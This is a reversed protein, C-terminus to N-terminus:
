KLIPLYKPNTIGAGIIPEIKYTKPIKAVNIPKPMDPAQCSFVVIVLLIIKNGMM